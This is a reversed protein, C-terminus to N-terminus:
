NVSTSVLEVIAFLIYKLNSVTRDKIHLKEYFLSKVAFLNSSNIRYQVVYPTFPFGHAYNPCNNASRCRSCILFRNDKIQQRFKTFHYMVVQTM